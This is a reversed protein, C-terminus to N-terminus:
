ATIIFPSGRTIVLPSVSSSSIGKTCPPSSITRHCFCRSPRPLAMSIEVLSRKDPRMDVQALCAHHWQDGNRGSMGASMLTIGASVYPKKMSYGQAAQITLQRILSGIRHLWAHLFYSPSNSHCHLNFCHSVLDSHRHLASMSCISARTNGAPM